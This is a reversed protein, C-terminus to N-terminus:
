QNGELPPLQLLARLGAVFENIDVQTGASRAYKAKVAAERQARCAKPLESPLAGATAFASRILDRDLLSM